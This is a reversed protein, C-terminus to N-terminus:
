GRGVVTAIVMNDKGVTVYDDGLRYVITGRKSTGPHSITYEKLIHKIREISMNREIARDVAHDSVGAVKGVGRIEAGKLADNYRKYTARDVKNNGKNSQKNIKNGINGQLNGNEDIPVPTNNVTIWDKKDDLIGHTQHNKLGRVQIYLGLKQLPTM